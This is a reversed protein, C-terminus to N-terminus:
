VTGLDGNAMDKWASGNYWVPRASGITPNSCVAIAGFPVGVLAQLQALTYTPIKPLSSFTIWGDAQLNIDNNSIINVAGTGTFNLDRVNVTTATVSTFTPDSGDALDNISAAGIRADARSNTFYLRSGEELHTTTKLLFRTDFHYDAAGVTFYQNTAGEPLDDSTKSGFVGNVLTEVTTAFGADNNIADALEKLTDLYGPAGGVISTIANSVRTNVQDISAFGTAVLYEKFNGFTIKKSATGNVVPIIDGDAIDIDDAMPLQSFKIKAITM